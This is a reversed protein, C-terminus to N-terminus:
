PHGGRSQIGKANEDRMLFTMMIPGNMTGVSRTHGLEIWVTDAKGDNGVYEIELAAKGKEDQQYCERIRASQVLKGLEFQYSTGPVPVKGGTVILHSEAGKSTRTWLEPTDRLAVITFDSQGAAPEVACDLTVIYPLVYGQAPAFAPFKAFVWRSEKTGKREIEILVAPNKRRESQNTAEGTTRDLGCDPHFKRIAIKGHQDSLEYNRGVEVTFRQEGPLDAGRVVIEPARTFETEFQRWLADRKEKSEVAMFRWTGIYSSLRDREPDGAVLWRRLSQKPGAILFELAPLGKGSEDPRVDQEMVAKALYRKVTLAKRPTPL